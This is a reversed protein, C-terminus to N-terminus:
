LRVIVRYRENYIEGCYLYRSYFNDLIVNVSDRFFFYVFTNIDLDIILRYNVYGYNDNNDIWVLEFIFEM